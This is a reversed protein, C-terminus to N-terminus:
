PACSSSVFINFPSPPHGSGLWDDYANKAINHCPMEIHIISKAEKTHAAPRETFTMFHFTFYKPKPNNVAKAFQNTVREKKRQFHFGISRTAQRIQGINKEGPYICASHATKIISIIQGMSHNEPILLIIKKQCISSKHYQQATTQKESLIKPASFITCM